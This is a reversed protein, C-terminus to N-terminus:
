NVDVRRIAGRLNPGHWAKHDYAEDLLQLLLTIEPGPMKGGYGPDRVPHDLDQIEHPLNAIQRRSLLCIAFRGWSLGEGKRHAIWTLPLPTPTLPSFEEREGMRGMHGM